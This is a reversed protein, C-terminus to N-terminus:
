QNNELSQIDFGIEVIREGRSDFNKDIRVLIGHLPKGHIWVYFVPYSSSNLVMSKQYSIFIHQNCEKCFTYLHNTDDDAMLPMKPTELTDIGVEFKLKKKKRKEKGEKAEEKEKSEKAEEKEKSEKVEEKEKSEKVEEKKKSEKVEEKEDSEPKEVITDANEKINEDSDSKLSSRSDKNERHGNEKNEVNKSTAENMVDNKEVSDKGDKDNFLAM